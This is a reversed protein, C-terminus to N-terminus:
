RGLPDGSHANVIMDEEGYATAQHVIGTGDAVTVYDAVTIIWANETGWVKTDAFTDWLREYEIHELEAGQLRRTIAAELSESDDYGLEKAYAGARASAVLYEASGAAAGDAAGAPGAPVVAYEIDPGVAVSFNTPLTWPTTTWALMRVGTLGLQAAKEGHMPFTVTVSPDQRMQYVDDDMRLEHNSLPTQDRWCYPLIRQGQYALDQKYLEAFAWIVSEMYETNLTKYDNDFDVWRAQRTVYDEWERTYQLVSERAKANFKAIGMDLIEQKETIGLQKMAERMTQFRPFVDKAYGTLLHGYHPLGNAFPPGDNFVWENCDARAAISDQFTNDSRWFALVQEEIEPLNASPTIEEPTDSAPTQIRPFSM